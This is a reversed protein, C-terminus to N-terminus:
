NQDPAPHRKRYWVATLVAMWIACIMLGGSERARENELWTNPAVGPMNWLSWALFVIGAVVPLPSHKGWLALATIAGAAGYAVIWLWPDPDNYQVACSVGFIGIMFVCAVRFVMTM